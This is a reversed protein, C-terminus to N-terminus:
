TVQVADFTITADSIDNSVSVMEYNIGDVDFRARPPGLTLGLLVYDERLLDFKGRIETHYNSPMMNSRIADPTKIGIATLGNRSITVPWEDRTELFEIRREEIWTM